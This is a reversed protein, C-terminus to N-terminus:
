LWMLIAYVSKILPNVLIKYQKLQTWVRHVQKMSASSSPNLMLYTPSHSFINKYSQGDYMRITSYSFPNNTINIHMCYICKFMIVKETDIITHETLTTHGKADVRWKYGVDQTSLAYERLIIRKLYASSVIIMESLYYWTCFKEDM